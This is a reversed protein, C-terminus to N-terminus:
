PPPSTSVLHYIQGSLSVLYVEGSEDEGFSSPQYTTDLLLQSQWASNEFKLGWIKGRCYDAYFYVGQMDPYAAGRYVYGGTVSCGNSDNAGHPYEAVPASYNAPASCGSPPDYCLSGELNNWGYNRGGVSNSPQFNVEERANQGVDAIYLDNTARDFSFRWPNRLGLAWIEPRYGPQNFFPNDPPIRYRPGLNSGIMPLYIRYAGNPITAPYQGNVNIRLIKGLLAAHNQGNEYPDGAGGGDGTGIYLYGDPGFELQGGNHNTQNPHPLALIQEESAPDALDPNSTTRFRAVVNNGDLQTYYVYFQQRRAYDPPFAVSLLGEEGGSRVHGSINLFPTAQLSGNKLLRIRGAQEVIFIRNSGDGAHTLFVPSALTSLNLQELAITPWAEPAQANVANSLKDAGLNDTQFSFEAASTVLVFGVVVAIKILNNMM